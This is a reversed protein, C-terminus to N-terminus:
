ACVKKLHVLHDMPTHIIFWLSQNQFPNRRSYVTHCIARQVTHNNQYGALTPPWILGIALKTPVGIIVGIKHLTTHYGRKCNTQTLSYKNTSTITTTTTHTITTRLDENYDLKREQPGAQQGRFNFLHTFTKNFPTTNFIIQM